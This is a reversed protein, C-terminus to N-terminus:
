FLRVAYTCYFFFAWAGTFLIALAGFVLTLTDMYKRRSALCSIGCVLSLTPLAAVLAVAAAARPKASTLVMDALLMSVPFAALAAVLAVIATRRAWHIRAPPHPLL